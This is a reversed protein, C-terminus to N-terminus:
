ATVVEVPPAIRTIAHNRIVVTTGWGQADQSPWLSGHTLHGVPCDLDVAIPFGAARVRRCFDIDDSWYTPELQGITWYPPTLAELVRRHVLLAGAGCAVVAPLVGSQGPALRYKRVWGEDHQEGYIHPLFPVDRSVYCGSIVSRNHAVLKQVTDPLFVQDDDAYFVYDCASALLKASILNRNQAINASRAVVIAMPMGPPPQLKVLSEWCEAYRATEACSVGLLVGSM